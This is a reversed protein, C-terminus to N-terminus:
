QAMTSLQENDRPDTGPATAVPDAHFSHSVPELCVRDSGSGTSVEHGQGTTPLLPSQDFRHEIFSQIASLMVGPTPGRTVARRSSCKPDASATNSAGLRSRASSRKVGSVISIM